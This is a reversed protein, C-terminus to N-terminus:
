PAAPATARLSGLVSAVLDTGGLADFESQKAILVGVVMGGNAGVAIAGLRVTIGDVTGDAVLLKGANGPGTGRKVLKLGTMAQGSIQDLVQDDTATANASVIVLLQAADKRKPDQQAVAMGKTADGTFAWGKPTSVSVGGVDHPELAPKAQATSVALCVAVVVKWIGM